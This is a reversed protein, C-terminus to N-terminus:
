IYNMNCLQWILTLDQKQKWKNIEMPILLLYHLNYYRSFVALSCGCYVSSMNYNCSLLVLLLLKVKPSVGDCCGHHTSSRQYHSSFYHMIQHLSFTKCSVSITISNNIKHVMAMRSLTQNPGIIRIRQQPLMVFLNVYGSSLADLTVPVRDQVLIARTTTHIQATVM